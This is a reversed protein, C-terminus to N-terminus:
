HGEKIICNRIVINESATNLRWGDQDRGSKIAIADGGQSFTCNEVLLNKTMEPDIGNNNRGHAYVDVGRVVAGDCLLLHIVWLPSNRIKIDEMLINKCRNFQIFQPRFHNEGVAM